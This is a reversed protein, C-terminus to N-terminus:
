LFLRFEFRPVLYADSSDPNPGDLIDMFDPGEKQAFMSKTDQHDMSM